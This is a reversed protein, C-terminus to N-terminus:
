SSLELPLSALFTFRRHPPLPPIEHSRNEKGYLGVSLM